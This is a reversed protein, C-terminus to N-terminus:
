PIQGALGASFGGENATLYPTGPLWALRSGETERESVRSGPMEVLISGVGHALGLISWSLMLGWEKRHELDNAIRESSVGVSLCSHAVEAISVWREDALSGLAIATFASNVGIMVSAGLRSAPDIPDPTLSWIAHTTLTSALAQAPLLMLLNEGAGWNDINFAFPAGLFGVAQLGSIGLQVGYLADESNQGRIADRLAILSFALDAIVVSGVTVATITVSANGMNELAHLPGDDARAASPTFAVAAILAAGFFGRSM